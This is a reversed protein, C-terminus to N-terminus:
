KQKPYSSSLWFIPIPNMRSPSTKTLMPISRMNSALRIAIPFARKKVPRVKEMPIVFVIVNNELNPSDDGNKRRRCTSCIYSWAEDGWVLVRKQDSTVNGKEL